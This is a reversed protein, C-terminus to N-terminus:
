EVCTSQAGVIDWASRPVPFAVTFLGPLNGGSNVVTWWIGGDGVGAEGCGERGVRFNEQRQDCM